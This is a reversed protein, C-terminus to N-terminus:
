DFITSDFIKFSKLDYNRGKQIIETCIKNLNM